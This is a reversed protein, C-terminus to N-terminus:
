TQILNPHGSTITFNKLMNDMVHENQTLKHTGDNKFLIQQSGTRGYGTAQFNHKQM